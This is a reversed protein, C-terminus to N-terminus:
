RTSMVRQVHRGRAGGTIDEFRGERPASLRRVGDGRETLARSEGIGVDTLGPGARRENGTSEGMLPSSRVVQRKSPMSGLSDDCAGAIHLLQM